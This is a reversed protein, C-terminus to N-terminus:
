KRLERLMSDLRLVDSFDAANPLPESKFCLLVLAKGYKRNVVMTKAATRVCRAAILLCSNLDWICVSCQLPQASTPTETTRSGSPALIKKKKQMKEKEKKKQIIVKFFSYTGAILLFLQTGSKPKALDIIYQHDYSSSSITRPGPPSVRGGGRPSNQPCIDNQLTARPHKLDPQECKELPPTQGYPWM